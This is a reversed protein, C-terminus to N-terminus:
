RRELIELFFGDPDRTYVARTTPNIQTWTGAKSISGARLQKMRDVTAQIDKVIFAVHGHGIDQFVPWYPAQEIGRFEVLELVIASGPLKIEATRYAADRINRLRSLSGETKWASPAGAQLDPGVLHRYFDLSAQLDGVVVTMHAGLVPSEASAPTGPAPAMEMLEVPYGDPDRLMIARATGPLGGPAPVTLADGATIFSANAAKAAAVTKNLDRVLVRLSSVGPSSLAPLVQRRDINRYEFAELYIQDQQRTALSTGQIPLFAARFEAQPPANVFENIAAVTYFPIPSRQGRLDLGLVDHYFDIIRHLDGTVRGLHWVKQVLAGEPAVVPTEQAFAVSTVLGVACVLKACLRVSLMSMASARM